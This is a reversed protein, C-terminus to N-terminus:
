ILMSFLKAILAFFAAWGTPAVPKPDDKPPAPPPPPPPPEATRPPEVEFDEPIELADDPIDVVADYSTWNFALVTTLLALALGANWIPGSWRFSNAEPYKNRATLPVNGAEKYKETLSGEEKEKLNNRLLLITGVIVVIIALIAGLLANGSIALQDM